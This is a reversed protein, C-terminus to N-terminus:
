TFTTGLLNHVAQPAETPPDETPDMAPTFTYEGHKLMAQSANHTVQM